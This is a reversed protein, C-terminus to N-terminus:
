GACERLVVFLDAGWWAECSFGTGSLEWGDGCSRNLVESLEYGDRVSDPEKLVVSVGHVKRWM